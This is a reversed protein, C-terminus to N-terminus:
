CSKRFHSFDEKLAFRFRDTTEGIVDRTHTASVFGGPFPLIHMGHNMLSTLLKPVLGPASSKLKTYHQELPNFNMPDIKENDPNTFIFFGSFEGYVAWPIGLEVLVQNLGSRLREGANNARSCIDTDRVLKMM